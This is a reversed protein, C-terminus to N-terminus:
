DQMSPTFSTMLGKLMNRYHELIKTKQSDEKKSITLWRHMLGLKTNGITMSVTSAQEKSLGFINELEKVCEGHYLTEVEEIKDGLATSTGRYRFYIPFVKEYAEINKLNCDLRQIENELWSLQDASSRPMKFLIMAEGLHKAALEILEERTAGIYEYIWARSVHASRAVQSLTLKEIGKLYMINVIANSVREVKDSKNKQRKQPNKTPKM